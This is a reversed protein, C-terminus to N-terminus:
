DKVVTMKRELIQRGNVQLDYIYLGNSMDGANITIQGSQEAINFSKVLRGALDYVNIRAGTTGAPVAYGIVTNQSFPNPANQELRYGEVGNAAQGAKFDNFASRLEAIETRLETITTAQAANVEAQEAITKDQEKIAETLVPILMTYNVAYYGDSNESAIEPMVKEVDQAIFGYQNGGPFNREKFEAQKFQYTTGQLRRVLDMANQIPKIDQKFRRDSTLTNGVSNVLGNVDLLVPRSYAGGVCGSGSTPQLTGIGVRGNGQFTMIPLKNGVGFPNVNQNNRFSIFMKDYGEIVPLGVSCDTSSLANAVDLDQWTIEAYERTGNVNSATVADILANANPGGYPSKVVQVNTAVGLTNFPPPAPLPAVGFAPYQARFGEALIGSNQLSGNAQAGIGSSANLKDPSIPFGFNQLDVIAINRFPTANDERADVWFTSLPEANIGTAGGPNAVLLNKPVSANNGSYGRIIFRNNNNVDDVGFGAILNNRQQGAFNESLLNYFGVSRNDSIALGYPQVPGGPNGVGLGCWKNNTNPNAPDFFLGVKGTVRHALIGGQVMFKAVANGSVFNTAGDYAIGDFFGVGTRGDRVQANTFSPSTIFGDNTWQSLGIQPLAVLAFCLLLFNKMCHANLFHNPFINKRDCFQL